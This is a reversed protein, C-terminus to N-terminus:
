RQFILRLHKATMIGYLTSVTYGFCFLLWIQTPGSVNLLMAASYMSLISIMHQIIIQHQQGTKINWKNLILQSIYPVSFIVAMVLANGGDEFEGFLWALTIFAFFMAFFLLSMKRFQKIFGKKKFIVSDFSSTLTAFLMYGFGIIRFQFMLDGYDEASMIRKAWLFISTSAIMFLLRAPLLYKADAFIELIYRRNITRQREYNDVKSYFILTIVLPEAALVIALIELSFGYFVAATKAAFAILYTVIYLSLFKKALGNAAVYIDFLSFTICCSSFIICNYISKTDIALVLLASLFLAIIAKILIATLLAGNYKRQVLSRGFTSELGLGSLLVLYSAVLQVQSLEGFEARGIAEVLIILFVFNLASKVMKATAHYIANSTVPM